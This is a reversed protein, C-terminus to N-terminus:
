ALAAFLGTRFAVAGGHSPHRVYECGLVAQALRGIAIPRRGGVVDELFGCGAEIEAHTPPRNSHPRRPLHPHTPVVNWLVVDDHRGLECLVRRVITATAEAPGCGSLQRESTFPIGSVRAGRYGAAEGVLVISADRRAALHEALRRRLLPARGAGAYFNHTRGIRARALREVFAAEATTGPEAVSRQM